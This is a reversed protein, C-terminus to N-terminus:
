DKIFKGNLFSKDPMLIKLQYVGAALKSININQQVRMNEICSVSQQQVIKGAADCVAIELNGSQKPTVNIWLRDSAPIPYVSFLTADYGKVAVINSYAFGTDRNLQKIRYFSVKSYDNYDPLQYNVKFSTAGSAATFNVPEFHLSDGLSREVSFGTAYFAYKTEWQLSAIADNTRQAKLALTAKYNKFHACAANEHNGFVIPNLTTVFPKVLDIHVPVFRSSVPTIHVMLIQRLPKKQAPANIIEMQAFSTGAFCTFVLIYLAFYKKM